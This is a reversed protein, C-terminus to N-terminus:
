YDSLRISFGPLAPHTLVENPGAEKRERWSQRDPSSLCHTVRTEPDVLWVENIGHRAYLRPKFDFCYSRNAGIVDIALVIDPGRVDELPKGRAFVAIEPKLITDDSLYFTCHVGLWLEDPLTKGLAIILASKMLEYASSRRAVPVIEGGILEFKERESLVGAEQMRLVDSVTFARRDLGEAARTVARM